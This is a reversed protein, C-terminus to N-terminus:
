REGELLKRAEDASFKMFAQFHGQSIHGCERCEDVDWKPSSEEWALWQPSEVVSKWFTDHGEKCGPCPVNKQHAHWKVLADDRQLCVEELTEKTGALEKEAREARAQLDEIVVNWDARKQQELEFEERARRLAAALIHKDCLFNGACDMCSFISKSALELEEVIKEETPGSEKDSM